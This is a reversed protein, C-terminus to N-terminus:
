RLAGSFLRAVTDEKSEREDRELQFSRLQWGEFKSPGPQQGRGGLAPMQGWRLWYKQYPKTYTDALKYADHRPMGKEVLTDIIANFTTNYDYGRDFYSLVAHGLFELVGSAAYKDALPVFSNWNDRGMGTPTLHRHMLDGGTEQALNRIFSDPGGELLLPSADLWPNGTVLAPAGGYGGGGGGGRGRSSVEQEYADLAANAANVRPEFRDYFNDYSTEIRDMSEKHIRELAAQYGAAPEEPDDMEVPEGSAERLAEAFERSAKNTKRTNQELEQRRGLIARVSARRNQEAIDPSIDTM